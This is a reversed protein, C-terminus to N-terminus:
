TIFIVCTRLCTIDADKREKLIIDYAVTMLILPRSVISCAPLDGSGSEILFNFKILNGLAELRV